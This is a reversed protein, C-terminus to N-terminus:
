TPRGTVGGGGGVLWRRAPSAEGGRRVRAQTCRRDIGVVRTLVAPLGHVPAAASSALGGDAAHVVTRGVKVAAEIAARRAAVQTLARGEAIAEDISAGVPAAAQTM